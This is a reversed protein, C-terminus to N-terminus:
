SLRSLLLATIERGGAAEWSVRFGRLLRRASCLELSASMLKLIVDEECM